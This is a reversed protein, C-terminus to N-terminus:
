FDTRDTVQKWSIFMEKGAQKHRRCLCLYIYKPLRIVCLYYIDEIDKVRIFNCNSQNRNCLFDCDFLFHVDFSCKCCTLFTKKTLVNWSFSVFILFFWYYLVEPWNRPFIVSMFLIAVWLFIPVSIAEPWHLITESDTVDRDSLPRWIRGHGSEIESSFASLTIKKEGERFLFLVYETALLFWVEIKNTIIEEVLSIIQKQSM